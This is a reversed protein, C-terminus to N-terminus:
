RRASTASCGGSSAYCVRQGLDNYVSLYYGASLNPSVTAEYRPTSQNSTYSTATTTLTISSNVYGLNTVTVSGSTARVDNTPPGVNPPTGYAVYATYTRSANLPASTYGTCQTYGTGVYCVRQGLDNYVSLYYGATLHPSVTAEYRPTSQNSTYSTATTTLTISSNVYGLNTVTVSGSTARVDNTPPGVNPPTGYAVYATYTRSANLPAGTSGTCQTYGTGIYCVRQGLDNYVSLYYGGTLHPSATAEYRPVSQNSTYSTGTATLTVEGSWPTGAATAPLPPLTVAIVAVAGVLAVRTRIM